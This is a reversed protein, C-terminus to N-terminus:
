GRSYRLDLYCAKESERTGNRKLKTTGNRCKKVTAVGPLIDDTVKQGWNRFQLRDNLKRKGILISLDL